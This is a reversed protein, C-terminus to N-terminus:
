GGKGGGKGFLLAGTKKGPAAKKVSKKTAKKPTSAKAM